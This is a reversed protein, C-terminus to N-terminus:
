VHDDPRYVAGVNAPCRGRYKAPVETSVSHRLGQTKYRPQWTNGNKQKKGNGITTLPDAYGSRRSEKM